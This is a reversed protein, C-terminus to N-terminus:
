PAQPPRLRGRRRRIARATRLALRWSAVYAGLGGLRGYIAAQGAYVAEGLPWGLWDSLNGANKWVTVRYNAMVRRQIDVPRDRFQHAGGFSGALAHTVKLHPAYRIAVGRREAWWFLDIDENFSHYEPDFLAGLEATRRAVVARRLVLCAGNGGAVFAASAPREVWALRHSTTRRSVGQDLGAAGQRVAPALLGWAHAAEDDLVALFDEDFTLDLNAVVVIDGTARTVGANTGGSYGTNTPLRVVEADLQATVHDAAKEGDEGNMVVILQPRPGRCAALSSAFAAAHQENRWAITVISVAPGSSIPSLHDGADARAGGEGM